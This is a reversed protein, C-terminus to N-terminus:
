KLLRKIEKETKGYMRLMDALSQMGHSFHMYMEIREKAEKRSIEYHNAVCTVLEPNYKGVKKGKVYKSFLKQKPLIDSLMKYHIKKDLSYYKQTFNIIETVVSNMSLWKNVMYTNYSKWNSESYTDPSTKKFTLDGLINFITKTKSV